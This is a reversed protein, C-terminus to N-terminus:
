HEDRLLVDLGANTSKVDETRTELEDIAAELQTARLENEFAEVNADSGAQPTKPPATAPSTDRFAVVCAVGSKAGEEGGIPEVILTLARAEGDIRMTLNDNVIRVGDAAAQSVAARVAPRLAKHLISLLNLSAAGQSPKLYHGTEGGSFRTVEHNRDIVFYAPAYHQM